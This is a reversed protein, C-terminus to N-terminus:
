SFLDYQQQTKLKRKKWFDIAAFYFPMAVATYFGSGFALALVYWSIQIQGTLFATSLLELCLVLSTFLFCLAVWLSFFGREMKQLVFDLLLAALVFSMMEIGFLQSGLLDRLLGVLFSLPLIRHWGNHYATYFIFLITFYFRLGGVQFLPSITMDAVTFLLALFIVKVSLIRYM